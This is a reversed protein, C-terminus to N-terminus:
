KCWQAAAREARAVEGARQSDDLFVREGAGNVTSIRQGSQLVRLQTQAQACNAQKEEGQAREKAAKQDAEARELQRKRFAEEPTLPKENKGDPKKVEAAPAQPPPPNAPVRMPTANVGPPPVDGYRTRGNSDKWKYLQAAASASFALAAVFAILKKM